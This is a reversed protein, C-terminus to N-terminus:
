YQQLLGLLFLTLWLILNLVLARFVRPNEFLPSFDPKWTAAFDISELYDEARM